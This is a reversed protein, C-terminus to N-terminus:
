GTGFTRWTSQALLVCSFLLTITKTNKGEPLSETWKQGKQDGNQKVSTRLVPKLQSDHRRSLGMIVGGSLTVFGKSPTHKLTPPGRFNRFHHSEKRNGWFFALHFAYGWFGSGLFAELLRTGPRRAEQNRHPQLLSCGKGKWLCCITTKTNRSFCVLVPTATNNCFSPTTNAFAPSEGFHTAEKEKFWGWFPYIREFVCQCVCVCM